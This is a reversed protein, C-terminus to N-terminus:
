AGDAAEELFRGFNVEVWRPRDYDWNQFATAGVEIPYFLECARRTSDSIKLLDCYERVAAEEHPRLNRRLCVEIAAHDLTDNFEQKRDHIIFHIFDFLPLSPERWTGFDLIGTVAGRADVMVHKARLDGHCFVLPLPAGAVLASVRGSIKMIQAARTENRVRTAALRALTDHPSAGSAAAPSIRTTELRALARALEMLTRSRLEIMGTQHVSNVGPRREEIYINIGELRAVGGPAPAPFTAHQARLHACAELHRRGLRDEKACLPVRAVAGGAPGSILLIAANGRTALLHDIQAPGPNGLQQMAATAIREALMTRTHAARPPHPDNQKEQTVVFAYSPVLWPFLGCNWGIWKIRNARERPGIDLTPRAHRSLACLYHYNLHSVYAATEKFISFGARRFESRWGRLGREKSPLLRGLMRLPGSKVFRGHLGTFQKYAFRNSALVVLDGDIKLLRRCERLWANLAAAGGPIGHPADPIVIMAFTGDAFPLPPALAHLTQIKMDRAEARITAFQLRSENDDVTTVNRGLAGLASATGLSAPGIVLVPGQRTGTALLAAAGVSERTGWEVRLATEVPVSWLLEEFAERFASGGSAKQLFEYFAVGAGQFPPPAASNNHQGASMRRFIVLESSGRPSSIARRRM